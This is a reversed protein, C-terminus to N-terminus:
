WEVYSIQTLNRLRLANMFLSGRFDLQFYMSFLFKHKVVAEPRKKLRPNRHSEFKTSRTWLHSGNDQHRRFGSRSGPQWRVYTVGKSCIYNLSGVGWFNVLFCFPFKKWPFPNENYPLCFGWFYFFIEGKIGNKECFCVIARISSCPKMCLGFPSSPPPLISFSTM